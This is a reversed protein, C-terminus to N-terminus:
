RLNVLVIGVLVLVAGSAFSINIPDNLLLVGLGVGFLPTLFSFVSLRSALYHRLMWFWVLLSIFCFIIGQFFLSLWAIPAIFSAVPHPIIFIAPLLLLACMILQYLLTKAPPAEALSSCRILVTTAAWFLGGLIGLADGIVIDYWSKLESHFGSSFALVIGLFALIIGLFQRPRLHESPILWHLGLAVFFPSTYLFVTMHSATTYLLGVSVCLYEATFLLGAAIGSWLTKGSLSLSGGRWLVLGCVLIAAIISRLAIQLVPTISPAGVKIAVQQLGWCLCLMLM